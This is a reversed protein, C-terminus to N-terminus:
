LKDKRHLIKKTTVLKKHLIILTKKKCNIRLLQEFKDDALGDCAKCSLGMNHRVIEFTRPGNQINRCAALIRVALDEETEV